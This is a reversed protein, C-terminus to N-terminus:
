SATGVTHPPAAPPHRATSDGIDGSPVGTTPFPRPAGFSAPPPPTPNPSIGVPPHYGTDTFTGAVPNYSSGGQPASLTYTQQLEYNDDEESSSYDYTDHRQPHGAYPNQGPLENQYRAVKTSLTSNMTDNHQVGFPRVDDQRRRQSQSIQERFVNGHNGGEVATAQSSFGSSAGRQEEDTPRRMPRLPEVDEDIRITPNPPAQPQRGWARIPYARGKRWTEHLPPFYQRYSAWAVLIGFASGFLVDFPHHRADMIRSGAVLAAGLTPALVVFAKWVEGKSDLVHM